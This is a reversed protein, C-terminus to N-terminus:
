SARRPPAGPLAPRRRDALARREDDARGSVRRLLHGPLRHLGLRRDGARARVLRADAPISAVIALGLIAAGYVLFPVFNKLSVSFSTKLADGVTFDNLVVLAPAFWIAMVAPIMLALAVLAAVLITMTSIAARPRIGGGMGMLWGLGLGAGAVAFAVVFAVLFM